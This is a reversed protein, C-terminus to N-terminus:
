HLFWGNECDRIKELIKLIRNLKDWILCLMIYGSASFAFTGVLLFLETKNM